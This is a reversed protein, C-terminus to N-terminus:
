QAGEVKWAGHAREARRGYQQPRDLVRSFRQLGHAQGVYQFLFRLGGKGTAVVTHVVALVTLCLM